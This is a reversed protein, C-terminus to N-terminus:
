TIDKDLDYKEYKADLVICLRQTSSITSESELCKEVYLNIFLERPKAINETLSKFSNNSIDIM